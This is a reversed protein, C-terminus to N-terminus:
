KGLNLIIILNKSGTILLNEHVSIEHSVYMNAPIKMRLFSSSYKVITM